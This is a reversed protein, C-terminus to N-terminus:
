IFLVNTEKMAIKEILRKKDVTAAESQTPL